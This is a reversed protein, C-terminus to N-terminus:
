HTGKLDVKMNLNRKKLQQEEEEGHYTRQLIVRIEYFGVGRYHQHM